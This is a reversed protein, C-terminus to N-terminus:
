LVVVHDHFRKYRRDVYLKPDTLIYRNNYYYFFMEYQFLLYIISTQISDDDLIGM